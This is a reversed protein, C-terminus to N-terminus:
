EILLDFSVNASVVPYGGANFDYTQVELAGTPCDAASGYWYALLAYGLSTGWEISVVPYDKATNIAISPTICYIGTSPNSFASVNKKRDSAIGRGYYYAVKAATTFGADPAAPVDPKPMGSANSGSEGAISAASCTLTAALALGLIGISSKM